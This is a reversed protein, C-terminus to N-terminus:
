GPIKRWAAYAARISEVVGEMGIRSTDLVMDYHAPDGIDAHFYKRVFASRDSETRVVYEEAESRSVKRDKMVRAIRAERPGVLRVRFTEEPPLVFNAGRGLIVANGHRGVTGVVKTLHRLYSDPWLHRVEFLSTLWDDRRTIQKEDLSAVVKESMEASDAVKQIIQGSVLDMGLATALKRAIATGGCGPERSVTIVPSPKEKTKRTQVPLGNWKDLQENVLQELSRPKAKM